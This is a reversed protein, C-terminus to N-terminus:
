VRLLSSIISDSRLWDVESVRLRGEATAVLMREAMAREAPTFVEPDVGRATRLATMVRDNFQEDATEPEEINVGTPDAMYKVLSPPDYSRVGGVYSHAGAGIGLYSTMDWYSSNHVAHRGPLAFNSIEYHEYGAQAALTCLLEYMQASLEESAEHIKGSMLRTHLLTGPEYSLSYASLHEPRLAIVGELSLRWSELTQGPLGYILDLSINDFGASRLIHFAEVAREPSHRRGVAELEAAVLSQVGMSVRNAGAARLESAYGATVDEPNVEVTVEGRGLRLFPALLRPNVASPTGGGVYVTSFERREPARHALEQELAAMYAEANFGRLPGSYFDCYACKARCFPIHIYLGLDLLVRQVSLIQM